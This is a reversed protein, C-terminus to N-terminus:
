PPASTKILLVLILVNQLKEVKQCQVKGTDKFGMVTWSSKGDNTSWPYAKVILALLTICLIPHGNQKQPLGLLLTRGFNNINDVSFITYQVTRFLQWANIQKM